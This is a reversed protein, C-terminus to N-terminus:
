SHASLRDVFFIFQLVLRAVSVVVVHQSVVQKLLFPSHEVLGLVSPCPVYMPDLAGAVVVGICVSRHVSHQILMEGEELGRKSIDTPPDVVCWDSLESFFAPGMLLGDFERLLYAVGVVVVYNIVVPKM